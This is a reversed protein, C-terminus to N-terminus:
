NEQVLRWYTSSRQRHTTRPSKSCGHSAKRPKSISTLKATTFPLSSTGLMNRNPDYQMIDKLLEQGEDFAASSFLLKVGRRSEHQVCVGILRKLLSVKNDGLVLHLGEIFITIVKDSDLELLLDLVDFYEQQDLNATRSSKLVRLITRLGNPGLTILTTDSCIILQALIVRLLTAAAVHERQEPHEHLFYALDHGTAQRGSQQIAHHIPYGNEINSSCKYWLLKSESGSRWEHYETSDLFAKTLEDISGQNVIPLSIHGVISRATELIVLRLDTFSKCHACANGANTNM